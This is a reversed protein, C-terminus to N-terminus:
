SGHAPHRWPTAIVWVIWRCERQGHVNQESKYSDLEETVTQIVNGKAAQVLRKQLTGRERNRVQVVWLRNEVDDGFVEM